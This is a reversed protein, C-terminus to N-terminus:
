PESALDNVAAFGTPTRGQDGVVPGAEGMVLVATFSGYQSIIVVFAGNQPIPGEAKTRQAEGRFSPPTINWPQSVNTQALTQHKM